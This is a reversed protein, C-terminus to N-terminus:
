PLNRSNLQRLIAVVAVVMQSDTHSIREESAPQCGIKINPRAASSQDISESRLSAHIQGCGTRIVVDRVTFHNIGGAPIIEIRGQTRDILKRILEIGDYASRQQGSTMVRKFGLDILVDLAELPEPTVDFARHFVATRDGCLGLLQRCRAVDVRGAATLVGFALGDAGHGLLWEADRLMVDFEHTSYHFGGSRPRVMAILPISVARRVLDFQGVSPTLGGLALASNLELRDAGGQLAALADDVSEVCVELLVRSPM